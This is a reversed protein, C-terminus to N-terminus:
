GGGLREMRKPARGFHREVIALAIQEPEPMATPEDAHEQPTAQVSHKM